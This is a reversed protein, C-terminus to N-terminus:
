FYKYSALIRHLLIINPHSTIVTPITREDEEEGTVVLVFSPIMGSSICRAFRCGKCERPKGCEDPCEFKRKALLTRRFFAACARCSDVGFHAGAARGDCVQLTNWNCSVVA